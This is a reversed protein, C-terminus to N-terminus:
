GYAPPTRHNGAEPGRRQAPLVLAQANARFHERKMEYYLRQWVVQEDPNLTKPNFTWAPVDIFGETLHDGNPM